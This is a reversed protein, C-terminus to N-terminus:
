GQFIWQMAYLWRGHVLMVIWREWVSIWFLGGDNDMFIWWWCGDSDMNIWDIGYYGNNEMWSWCSFFLDGVMMKMAVIRIITDLSTYVHIFLMLADFCRSNGCTNLHYLDVILPNKLWWSTVMLVTGLGGPHGGELFHPAHLLDHRQCRPLGLLILRDTAAKSGLWSSTRRPWEFHGNILTFLLSGHIMVYWSM